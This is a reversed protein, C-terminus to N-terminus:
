GLRIIREVRVQKSDVVIQLVVIFGHEFSTVEIEQQFAVKGIWSRCWIDWCGRGCLIEGYVRRTAM